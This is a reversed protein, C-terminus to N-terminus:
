AVATIKEPSAAATDTLENIHKCAGYQRGERCSCAYRGLHHEWQQVYYWGALVEKDAATFYLTVAGALTYTIDRLVEGTGCHVFSGHLNMGVQSSRSVIRETTDLKCMLVHFSRLPSLCPQRKPFQKLM